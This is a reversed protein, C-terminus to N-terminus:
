ANCESSVPPDYAAAHFDIELRMVHGFVVSLREAESPDGYSDIAEKLWRAQAEFDPTAHLDVWARLDPEAIQGQADTLLKEQRGAERSSARGGSFLGRPM